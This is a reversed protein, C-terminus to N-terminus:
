GARIKMTEKTQSLTNKGRRTKPPQLQATSTLERGKYVTLAVLEESSQKHRVGLKQTNNAKTKPRKESVSNTKIVKNWGPSNLLVNNLKWTHLNGLKKRV